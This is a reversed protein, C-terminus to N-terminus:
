QGAEADKKLAFDVLLPDWNNSLLEKRLQGADSGRGKRDAIFVELIRLNYKQAPSLMQGCEREKETRNLMFAAAALVLPILLAALASIFLYPHSRGFLHAATSLFVDFLYHAALVAILGFRLYVLGLFIGVLSIEIIRFWVPFVPYNSHELGWIVSVLIVALWRKRLYRTAFNIGFLRYSLEESTAATFGLAFVSLFPIYASSFESLREWEKWVGCFEQGAWYVAAQIGAIMIFFLYGLMISNALSRNLFSSRIFHLMSAYRDASPRLSLIFEGVGAFIIFSAAMFAANMFVNLLYYALYSSPKVSTPYFMVASQFNNAQAALYIIVFAAGFLYYCRSSSRIALEDKRGVLILVAWGLMAVIVVFGLGYLVEGLMLQDNIYRHFKEPIELSGKRFERIERGSVTAEALLKAGGKDKGWPVYVGKKEWSFRYDTRNDHRQVNEQHFDYDGPDLGFSRRLFDWALARAQDKKLDVRRETDEIFHRFRNVKGTAPSIYLQYEEKEQPRFFRVQWYFIEFGHSRLFKEQADLGVSRQLYRDAWDDAGFVVASSYDRDKVGLSRLYDRSLALAKERGVSFDMFIYAPYELKLWLLAASFALLVSVLWQRPTPRM